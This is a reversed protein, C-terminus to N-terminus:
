QVCRLRNWFETLLLHFCNYSMTCLCDDHRVSTRPLIDPDAEIRAIIECMIIGYSFVDAKEDYRKGNICEPAMWYPSGVIPLGETKLPDPIKTALGFDGIVTHISDKEKKLLVNKSTLDRHMIGQSHLYCMGRATHTAMLIRKPWPLHTTDDALLEELSGGNIFETLAHLQGEHVCAGVFRLINPHSLKNMLQVERLVNPRNTLLTNLKLVMVKGSAKHTVKFVESFFGRGLPERTFDDLRYLSSVAHRLALCSVSSRRTTTRRQSLEDDDDDKCDAM